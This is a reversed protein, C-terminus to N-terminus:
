QAAWWAAIAAIEQDSFGKVIRGMVTAPRTGARFASMAAVIEGADRGALPRLVADGAKAAAAPHCNSCAAVGPPALTAAGAGASPVILSLILCVATTKM